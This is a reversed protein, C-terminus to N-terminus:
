PMVIADPLPPSEFDFQVYPFVNIITTEGYRTVRATVNNKIHIHGHLLYRPQFLRM